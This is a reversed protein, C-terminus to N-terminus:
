EGARFSEEAQALSCMQARPASTKGENQTDGGDQSVVLTWDTNVVESRLLLHLPCLVFCLCQCPVQSDLSQLIIAELM